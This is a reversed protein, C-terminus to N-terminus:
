RKLSRQALAWAAGVVGAGFALGRVFAGVEDKETRTRAAVPSRPPVGGLPAPDLAAADAPEQEGREARVDPAVAAWAAGYLLLRSVYNMWVLLVLSVGLTAFAPNGLAAAVLVAALLKLLEFGAGALLAARLLDRRTVEAHSALLRFTILFLVTSSAVGLAIGVAGFLLEMGAVDALGVLDLLWPILAAVGTSLGVSVILTVGLVVLAALDVLKGLVFNPRETPPIEFVDGLSSRLAGLWGLGAYLLGAAGILTAAAAADRFTGLSICGSAGECSERVIGPFADVLGSSLADRARPFVGAVFGVVGFALALVPFFSLYAFYTIGGALVSGDRQGYHQVMAIAHQVFPARQEVREATRKVKAVAQSV